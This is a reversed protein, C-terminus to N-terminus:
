VNPIGLQIYYDFALDTERTEWEDFTIVGCIWLYALERQAKEYEDKSM